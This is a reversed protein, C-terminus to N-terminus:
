TGSGAETFGEGGISLVAKGSLAGGRSAKDWLRLTEGYNEELANIYQLLTLCLM